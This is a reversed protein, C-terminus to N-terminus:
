CKPCKGVGRDDRRASALTFHFRWSRRFAYEICAYCDPQRDGGELWEPRGILDLGCVTSMASDESVHVKGRPSAITITRTLDFVLIQDGRPSKSLAWLFDHEARVLDLPPPSPQHRSGTSV